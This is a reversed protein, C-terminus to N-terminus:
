NSGRFAPLLSDIEGPQKPENSIVEDYCPFFLALESKIRSAGGHSRLQRKEEVVRESKVLPQLDKLERHSGSPSANVHNQGRADQARRGTTKMSSSSERLPAKEHPAEVRQKKRPPMEFTPEAKIQLVQSSADTPLAKVIGNHQLKERTSQEVPAQLGAVRRSSRLTPVSAAAM